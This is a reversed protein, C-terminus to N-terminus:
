SVFVTYNLHGNYISQFFNNRTMIGFYVLFRPFLYNLTFTNIGWFLYTFLYSLCNNSILISHLHTEQGSM